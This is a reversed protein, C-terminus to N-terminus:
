LGNGKGDILFVFPILYCIAYAFPFIYKLSLLLWYKMKVERANRVCYYILIGADKM